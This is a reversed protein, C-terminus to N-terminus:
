GIKYAGSAQCGAGLLHHALTLAAQDLDREFDAVGALAARQLSFFKQILSL